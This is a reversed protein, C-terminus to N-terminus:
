EGGARRQRRYAWAGTGSLWSNRQRDFSRPVLPVDCNPCLVADARWVAKLVAWPIGGM